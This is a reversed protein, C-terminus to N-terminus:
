LSSISEFVEPKCILSPLLFLLPYTPQRINPGEGETAPKSRSGRFLKVFTLNAFFGITERSENQAGFTAACASKESPPAASTARVWSAVHYIRPNSLARSEQRNRQCPIAGDQGGLHWCRGSGTVRSLGSVCLADLDRGRKGVFRERTSTNPCIEGQMIM